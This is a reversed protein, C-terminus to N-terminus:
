IKVFSSQTTIGYNRFTKIKPPARRWNLKRVCYIMDHDSLGSTVVGSRSINQPNNSALLDLLTSSENTVRTPTKIFQTLNHMKFISKLHKCESNYDKKDNFTCNFDGLVIIEQGRIGVIDLIDDFKCM